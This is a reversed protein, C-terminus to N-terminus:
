FHIIIPFQKQEIKGNPSFKYKFHKNNIRIKIFYGKYMLENFIKRIHYNDTNVKYRIIRKWFGFKLPEFKDAHREILYNFVEEM